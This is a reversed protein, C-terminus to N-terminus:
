PLPTPDYGGDDIAPYEFVQVKSLRVVSRNPQAYPITTTPSIKLTAPQQILDVGITVDRASTNPDGPGPEVGFLFFNNDYDKRIGDTDLPSSAVVTYWGGHEGPTDLTADQEPNSGGLGPMIAASIDDAVGGLTVSAGVLDLLYSMTGGATQFRFRLSGQVEATKTVDETPVPATAYFRSVYLKDPSVRLRDIANNQTVNMLGVGFVNQAVTDSDGRLGQVENFKQVFGTPNVGSPLTLDQRRGPQFDAEANFSGGTLSKAGGAGGALGLARNYEYVLTADTDAPTKADYTALVVETLSLTGNAPDPIAYSEMVAGINTGAAAAVDIPDLDVRYLSPVSSDASPRLWMGARFEVEPNNTLLYFPEYGPDTFGTQAYEYHIAGTVAGENTVRLRFGPVQNVPAYFSNSVYIFFKGRVFKGSGVSDYPLLAPNQWGHIRYHAFDPTVKIDLQGATASTAVVSGTAIGSKKWGSTFNTDRVLEQYGDSDTAMDTGGDVTRILTDQYSVNTGDSVYFRLAKGEAAAAADAPNPSPFPGGGTGPSFLIDRFSAFDSSQNLPNAPNKANPFGNLEENAIATDGNNIPGKGNIQYEPGALDPNTYEGFSWKLLTDPTDADSVYASFQFANSFVFLNSDTSVSDELDGVTIDPLGSIIPAAAFAPTVAGLAVVGAFLTSKFGKVM